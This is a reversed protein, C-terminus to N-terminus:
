CVYTGFFLAHVVVHAGENITQARPYASIRSRVCVEVAVEASM